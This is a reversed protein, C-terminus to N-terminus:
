HDDDTNVGNNGNRNNSFSTKNTITNNNGNSNYYTNNNDTGDVGCVRVVVVCHNVVVYVGIGVSIGDDVGVFVAVEGVGYVVVM